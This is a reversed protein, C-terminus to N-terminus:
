GDGRAAPDELYREVARAILRAGFGSAGKPGLSSGSDTWSPGAIDLHAWPTDEDVFEELFAAATSAGAWRGGGINKLDAIPSEMLKHHEEIVPMPWVREFVDGGAADIAASLPGDNSFLGAFHEGLAVVCAGTLTAADIIVDAGLTKAHHLADALILRGEADTNLVEVTKGSAMVLVDGPRLANGDPMNEVTPVIVLLRARVNRRALIMAAGLVAASGGMDGKMEHMNSGPKLSIGGTDFTVGKGVLAITPVKGRGGPKREMVILKSEKRSGQGVGLIGGMGQKKMWAEGHVSCLYGEQRSIRRAESALRAPTLENPPMNVLTRAQLCGAALDFGQTLGDRVAAVDAGVACVKVERPDVDAKRRDSKHTSAVFLGLEGGEACSRAVADQALDSMGRWPLALGVRGAHLTRAQKIAMAVSRRLVEQTLDDVKGLGLFILWPAKSRGGSAIHMSEAAANFVETGALVTLAGGAAKDLASWGQRDPRGDMQLCAVVLVDCPTAEAATRAITWRM